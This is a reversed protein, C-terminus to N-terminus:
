EDSAHDASQEVAAREQAARHALWREQAADGTRQLGYAALPLMTLAFPFVYVSKAEWLVFCAFGGLLITAVLCLADLQVADQERDRRRRRDRLGVGLGLAAFVYVISQHVNEFGLMARNGVGWLVHTAIFGNSRREALSSYYLSQYSPDTWESALKRVFFKVAEAPDDVFAQLSAMISAKALQGQVDPDGNAAQYAHIASLDWWGPMIVNEEPSNIALGIAIWSSQVLGPGFQQNVLGEVIPLTLGSAEKAVLMMVVDLAILWYMRKRLFAVALGITVALMFLVVTGKIAMAVAGVAFAAVTLLAAKAVSSQRMAQLAVIVALLAFFLGPTNPYLFMPSMILPVSTMILLAEIRKGRENLGIRDGITWLEWVIGCTLAINVALLAYLNNIGFLAFIAAFWLLAGTQFPYWSYYTHFAPDGAGSPVFAEAQGLALANASQILSTSDNYHFENGTMNLSLAWILTACLTYLLLFPLVRRKPLTRVWAWAVAVLAAAFLAFGVIFLISPFRISFELRETTTAFRGIGPEQSPMFHGTIVISMVALCAVVACAFAAALTELFQAIKPAIDRRAASKARPTSSTSSADPVTM